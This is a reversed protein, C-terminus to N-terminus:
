KTVMKVYIVDGLHHHKASKAIYNQANVYILKKMLQIDLNVHKVTGLHNKPVVLVIQNV